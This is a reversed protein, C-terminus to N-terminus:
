AQAHTTAAHKRVIATGYAYIEVAMAGKNGSMQTINCFAFRVNCVERAGFRQAESIMRLIAERRARDLLKQAAHMEGGVLNRMAAAFTKFYDTAIVVQGGVFHVSEIAGADVPRKLNTLLVDRVQGERIALQRLHRREMFGGALVGLMLFAVFPIVQIWFQVM